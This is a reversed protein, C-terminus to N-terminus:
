AVERKGMDKVNNGKGKVKEWMMKGIRGIGDGVACLGQPVYVLIFMYYPLVYRTQSEWIICFLFGGVLAILPIYLTSSQPKKRWLVVLFAVLSAYVLTQYGNSFHYLVDYYKGHYLEDVWEPMPMEDSFSYTSLLSEFIPDIWQMEIKTKFFTLAYSPNEAFYNLRNRVEEWGIASAAERDFGVSEYTSQNYRNYVGPGNLNDQLGMAFYLSAPTGKTDEYGSRIEYSVNLAKLAVSASLIVCAAVLLPRISRKQVALLLLGIAVAILVIWTNTRAFLALIAALSAIAVYRKQSRLAYRHLAWFMVSCFCISPLDGYIYPMLIIYPTCFLMLLCYIFRYIRRENSDKIFSYGCLITIVGMGIHFKEAVNYCFDGFLSFLIEYFFVLGKQQSYIGIYGGKIFMIMNGHLNYYAAATTSLQDGSPYYPVQTTWILCVITFLLCVIGVFLYEMQQVKGALWSHPAAAMHCFLRELGVACLSVLILLIAHIWWKDAIIYIPSADTGSYYSYCASTYALFLGIGMSFILLIMVCFNWLKQWNDKHTTMNFRM